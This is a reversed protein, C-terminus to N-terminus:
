SNTTAVYKLWEQEVASSSEDAVDEPATTEPAPAEAEGPNDEVLAALREMSEALAALRERNGQTLDKKGKSSRTAAVREAREIISAVVDTAEAVEDNLTKKAIRANAAVGDDKSPDIVEDALGAAVTEEDNMWTEDAMLAAYHAKDESGRAAYIAAINDDQRDLLDAYARMDESNGIALGWAKHIMTQAGSLMIRHDGAQVIVSAISAAIGDVRTTVKAPHARLANYIAIGDFVDGGPSNIMVLIEPATIEDLESAFDDASIGWWSIEDYIRIEAVDGDKNSIDYWRRASGANGVLSRIRDRFAHQIDATKKTKM